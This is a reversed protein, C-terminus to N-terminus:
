RRPAASLILLTAAASSRRGQRCTTRKGELEIKSASIKAIEDKITRIDSNIEALKANKEELRQEFQEIQREHAAVANRRAESDGTLSDLLLSLQHVSNETARKEAENSSVGSRLKAQDELAM